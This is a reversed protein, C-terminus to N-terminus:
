GRQDIMICTKVLLIGVIVPFEASFAVPVRSFGEESIKHALEPTFKTDLFVQFVQSKPTYIDHITTEGM